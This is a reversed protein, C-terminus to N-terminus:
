RLIQIKNQAHKYVTTAPSAGPPVPVPVIPATPPEILSELLLMIEAYM